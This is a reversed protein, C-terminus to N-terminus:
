GAARKSPEPVPEPVESGKSMVSVQPAGASLRAVDAPVVRWRRALRSRPEGTARDFELPASMPWSVVIIRGHVSAPLTRRESGHILEITVRDATPGTM